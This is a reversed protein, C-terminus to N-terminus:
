LSFRHEMESSYRSTLPSLLLWVDKGDQLKSERSPLSCPPLRPSPRMRQLKEKRFIVM